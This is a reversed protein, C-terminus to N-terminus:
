STCPDAWCTRRLYAHCHEMFHSVVGDKPTVRRIHQECMKHILQVFYNTMHTIPLIASQAVPTFPETFMFYNPMKPAAVGMYSAPLEAWREALVAGDLGIVPFRPCYLTDFGTAVIIVDCEYENGAQDKFGNPTIFHITETFITTKEGILAELYGNGRTPRRCSVNFNNPVIKDVLRADNKLENAEQSEATNRTIVKSWQNIEEEILKRYGRYKEPDERWKM